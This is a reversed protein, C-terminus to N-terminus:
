GLEEGKSWNRRGNGKQKGNVSPLKGNEVGRALAGGRARPGINGSANCCRGDKWTGSTQKKEKKKAL